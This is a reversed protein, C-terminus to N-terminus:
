RVLELISSDANTWNHSEANMKAALKQLGEAKLVSVFADVLAPDFHRSRGQKITEVAKELTWAEKYPRAHTLADFVDAIATIRAPLPIMEGGLGQPYGEGDWREHHFIAIERALKLVGFRSGGLIQGGIVTHSKMIAFEEGTLKGTKAFIRDPVGIKGVDHLPAALRLLDVEHTPQGLARALMAALMGVRQTHQGTEDDRYEAALALRQLIEVQAEALQRTREEVQQGLTHNNTEVQKYLLRTELLNNVRLLLETNDLPKALFDKAGAALAKRKAEPTVDATLVLIPLYVDNPLQESILKILTLGDLQPMHLDMLILDPSREACITLVRRPDTVSRVDNYGASELMMELLRINAEQDDVILLSSHEIQRGSM